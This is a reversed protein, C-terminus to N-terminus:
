DVMVEYEQLRAEGDCIVSQSCTLMENGSDM